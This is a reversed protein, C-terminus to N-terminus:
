ACFYNLNKAVFFFYILAVTDKKGRIKVKIERLYEILIALEPHIQFESHGTCDMSTHQIGYLIINSTYGYTSHVSILM